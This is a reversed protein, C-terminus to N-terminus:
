ISNHMPRFPPIYRYYFVKILLAAIPQECLWHESALSDLTKSAWQRNKSARFSLSYFRNEM